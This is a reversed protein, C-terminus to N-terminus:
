AKRSDWKKTELAVQKRFEGAYYFFSITVIVSAWGAMGFIGGLIASVGGIYFLFSYHNYGIRMSDVYEGITSRSAHKALKKIVPM